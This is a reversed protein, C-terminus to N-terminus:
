HHYRGRAQTALIDSFIEYLKGSPASITQCTVPLIDVSAPPSIARFVPSSKRNISLKSLKRPYNGAGFCLQHNFTLSVLSRISHHLVFCLVETPINNRQLELILELSPTHTLSFCHLPPSKARWDVVYWVGLTDHNENHPFAPPPSCTSTIIQLCCHASAQVSSSTKASRWCGGERVYSGWLGGCRVRLGWSLVKPGM